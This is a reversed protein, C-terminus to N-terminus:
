MVLACIAPADTLNFPLGADAAHAAGLPFRQLRAAVEQSCVFDEVAGATASGHITGSFAVVVPECDESVWTGNILQFETIDEAGQLQAKMSTQTRSFLIAEVLSGNRYRITM